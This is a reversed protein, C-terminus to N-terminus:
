KSILGLKQLPLWHQQCHHRLALQPHSPHTSPPLGTTSMSAECAGRFGKVQRVADHVRGPHGGEEDRDQEDDVSGEAGQGHLLPPPLLPNLFLVPLALKNFSIFVTVTMKKTM